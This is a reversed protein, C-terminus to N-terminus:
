FILVFVGLFYTAIKRLLSVIFDIFIPPSFYHCVLNIGILANGAASACLFTGILADCLTIVAIYDVSVFTKIAASACVSTGAASNRFLLLM